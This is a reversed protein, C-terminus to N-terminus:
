VEWAVTCVRGAPRGICLWPSSRIRNFKAFFRGCLAMAVLPEVCDCSRNVARMAERCEFQVGGEWARSGPRGIRWALPLPPPSGRLRDCANRWAITSSSAGASDAM